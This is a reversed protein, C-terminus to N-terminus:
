QDFETATISNTQINNGVAIGGTKGTYNVISNASTDILVTDSTSVNYTDVDAGNGGALTDAGGGGTLTESQTSGNIRQAFENGQVNTM